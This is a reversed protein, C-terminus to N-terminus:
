PNCNMPRGNDDIDWIIAGYAGFRIAIAKRGAVCIPKVEDPVNTAPFPVKLSSMLMEMEKVAASQGASLQAPATKKASQAPVVGAVTMALLAVYLRKM